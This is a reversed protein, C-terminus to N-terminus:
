IEDLAAALADRGELGGGGGTTDFGGATKGGPVVFLGTREDIGVELELVEFFENAVVGGGTGCATGFCGSAGAINGGIGVDASLGVAFMGIREEPLLADEGGTPEGM